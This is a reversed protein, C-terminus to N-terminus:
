IEPINAPAFEADAQYARGVNQAVNKTVALHKNDSATAKKEKKDGQSKKPAKKIVPPNPVDKGSPDKVRVYDTSIYKNSDTSSSRSASTKKEPM